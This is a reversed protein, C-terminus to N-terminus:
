VQLDSTLPVFSIPLCEVVRARVIKRTATDTRVRGQTTTQMYLPMAFQDSVEGGVVHKKTM